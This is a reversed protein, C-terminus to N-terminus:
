VADKSIIIQHNNTIVGSCHNDSQDERRKEVRWSGDAWPYDEKSVSLIDVTEVTLTDHSKICNWSKFVFGLM